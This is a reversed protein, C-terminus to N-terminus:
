AAREQKEDGGLVANFRQQMMELLGPFGNKGSFWTEVTVREGPALFPFENRLVTQMLASKVILSTSVHFQQGNPSPVPGKQLENWESSIDRLQSVLTELAEDLKLYREVLRDFLKRQERAAEIAAVRQEEATAAALRMEAERIAADAAELESGHVAAQKNIEDLRKRAKADGTMAEYAIKQREQAFQFQLDVIDQKKAKLNAVVQAAKEVDTM